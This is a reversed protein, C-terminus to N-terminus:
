SVKMAKKVELHYGYVVEFSELKSQLPQNCYGMALGLRNRRVAYGLQARSTTCRPPFPSPPFFVGLIGSEGPM